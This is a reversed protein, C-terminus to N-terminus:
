ATVRSSLSCVVSQLGNSMARMVRLIENEIGPLEFVSSFM